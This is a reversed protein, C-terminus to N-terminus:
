DVVRASAARKSVEAPAKTKGDTTVVDIIDEASMEQLRGLTKAAEDPSVQGGTIQSLLEPPADKIMAKAQELAEPNGKLKSVLDQLGEPSSVLESPVNQVEPPPTQAAPGNAAALLAARAQDSAANSPEAKTVSTPPMAPAPPEPPVIGYTETLYDMVSGKRNVMAAKFVDGM